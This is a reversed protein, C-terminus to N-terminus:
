TQVPDTQVPAAEEKVRCEERVLTQKEYVKLQKRICRSFKGRNSRLLFKADCSQKCAFVGMEFCEGNKVPCSEDFEITELCYKTYQQYWNTAQLKTVKQNDMPNNRRTILCDRILQEFEDIPSTDDSPQFLSKADLGPIQPGNPFCATVSGIIVFCWIRM